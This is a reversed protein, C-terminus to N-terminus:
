AAASSLPPCHVVQHSDGMSFEVDLANFKLSPACMADRMSVMAQPEGAIGELSLHLMTMFDQLCSRPSTAGVYPMHRPWSRAQARLITSAGQLLPLCSTQLPWLPFELQRWM